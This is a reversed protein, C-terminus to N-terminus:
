RYYSIISAITLTIPLNITTLIIFASGEINNFDNSILNIIKGINAEKIAFATLSTVKKHINLM